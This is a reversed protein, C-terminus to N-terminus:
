PATAFSSPCRKSKNRISCYTESYAVSHLVDRNNDLVKEVLKAGSRAIGPVTM